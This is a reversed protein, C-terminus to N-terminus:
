RAVPFAVAGNREVLRGYLVEIEDVVAGVSFMREALRRANAATAGQFAEDTLLRTAGEVLGDVDGPSVVIGAGHASIVPAQGVGSTTLVPKGHAMAELLALPYPDDDSPLALLECCEFAEHKERGHLPGLWRYHETVGLREALARIKELEGADPGVFLVCIDPVKEILRPLAVILREPRKYGILISLYLIVRRGVLGHEERFRTARAPEFAQAEAANRIISIKSESINLQLLQDKDGASLAIFHDFVNAKQRRAAHDFLSYFLRKATTRTRFGGHVHLVTPVNLRGGMRSGIESQPQRYGHAHILDFGGRKLVPIIGPFVGYHGVNVYSRLRHIHVGNVTEFAPMTPRPTGRHARNATFVHVEHGRATLEESIYQCVVEVGGIVPAYYPVLQAVKMRGAM